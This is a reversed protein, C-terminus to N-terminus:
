GSCFFVTGDGMQQQYAYGGAQSGPKFCSGSCHDAKDAGYHSDQKVLKEVFDFLEAECWFIAGLFPIDM